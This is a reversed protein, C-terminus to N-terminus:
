PAVIREVRREPLSAQMDAGLPIHFYAFPEAEFEDLRGFLRLEDKIGPRRAPVVNDLVILREETRGQRAIERHDTGIGIEDDHAAASEMQAGSTECFPVLLRPAPHAPMALGETRDVIRAEAKEPDVVTRADEGDAVTQSGVDGAGASGPEVANQNGAANMGSLKTHDVTRCGIRGPDLRRDAVGRMSRFCDSPAEAPSRRDTAPGVCSWRACEPRM